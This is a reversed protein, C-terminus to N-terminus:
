GDISLADRYSHYLKVIREDDELFGKAKAYLLIQLRMMDAPRLKEAGTSSEDLSWKKWLIFTTMQTMIDAPDEAFRRELEQIPPYAETEASYGDAVTSYVSIEMLYPYDGITSLLAWDSMRSAFYASVLGAPNDELRMDNFEQTGADPYNYALPVPAFAALLLVLVLAGSLLAIRAKKSQQKM